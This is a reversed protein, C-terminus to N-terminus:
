PQSGEALAILDFVSALKKQLDVLAETKKLRLRLQDVEREAREARQRWAKGADKSATQKKAEMSAGDRWRRWRAPMSSYLGERRLIVGVQGPDARDIETLIRLRYADTFRRKTPKAHPNPLKQAVGGAGASRESRESRAPAPPTTNKTDIM